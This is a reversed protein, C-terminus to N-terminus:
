KKPFYKPTSGPAWPDYHAAFAARRGISPHSYTWFEMLQSPNPVDFSSSGLVDFAGKTAAQPDAVVGHIAEQGYVDADHEQIRTLSSFIPEAIASFISFALFLVVLAGWQSQDTVGWATGYRRIMWRVTYFGLLFLVFTVGVSVLIGQVIHGLVYHGSEHGFIFLVEDPTGKILSTDWMVVRKSSGFGSVYANMTTVKESAKMLFMREPPINMHGRDAIVELRRVLEPNSQSLPEFKNFMREFVPSGYIGILTFAVAALWGPIWWRNPLKRILLFLLMVFLGGFIWLLGLMKLQDVAWSGWSQVSLGYRRSLSQGYISLPLGLLASTVVFLLLFGFCQLWRSRLGGVLRQYYGVVGLSLLLALQVIGWVLNGFHMVIGIHDLHQAKALDAPSLVYSPINGRPPSSDLEAQAAVSAAHEAATQAAFVPTSRFLCFALLVFLICRRM